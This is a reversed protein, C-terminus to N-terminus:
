RLVEASKSSPSAPWAAKAMAFFNRLVTKGDPFQESNAEPHFQVGYLLRRKHKIAQVACNESSALLDFESPVKKIECYHAQFLFPREGVGAFLPDQRMLRLPYYGSEMFYEAHYATNACPEDERRLRMPEDRLESVHALDQNYAFGLLQHSGCICLTPITTERICNALRRWDAIPYEQFSKRFGSFVLARIPLSDLFAKTCYHHPVILCPLGSAEELRQQYLGIPDTSWEDAQLLRVFVVVGRDFSPM